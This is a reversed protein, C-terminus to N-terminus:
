SDGREMQRILKQVRLEVHRYIGRTQPFGPVEMCPLKVGMIDRSEEESHIDQLGDQDAKKLEVVLNIISDDLIAQAGLFKETEVIGRSRVNILGKVLEHGRGYLSDGRREVDVVDDAIWRHGREVLELACETKGAGSDGLLMVGLGLVNVFTGHMSISKKIKERLLRSLRSELLYEDYMSAFLPIGYLEPLDLLAGPVSDTESVAVCPISKSMIAQLIKKRAKLPIGTLHSVCTPTIVLIADPIIRDWFGATEEYRQVHVSRISKSLGAEGAIQKLGLAGESGQLIDKLRLPAM